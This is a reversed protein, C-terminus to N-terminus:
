IMDLIIYTNKEAFKDCSSRFHAYLLVTLVRILDITSFFLQFSPSFKKLESFKAHERLHGKEM